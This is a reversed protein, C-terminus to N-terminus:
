QLPRGAPGAEARLFRYWANGRGVIPIILVVGHAHYKLNGILNGDADTSFYVAASARLVGLGQAVWRPPLQVEVGQPTCRYGVRYQAGVIDDVYLRVRITDGDQQTLEVNFPKGQEGTGSLLGSLSTIRVGMGVFPFPLSRAWRDGTDFYLGSIDPCGEGRAVWPSPYPQHFVCASLTLGCALATTVAATTTGERLRWCRANSLRKRRQLLSM